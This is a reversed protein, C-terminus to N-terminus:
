FKQKFKIDIVGKSKLFYNAAFTHNWLMRQSKHKKKLKLDISYNKKQSKSKESFIINLISETLNNKFIQEEICIKLILKGFKM